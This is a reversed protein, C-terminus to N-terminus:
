LFAAALSLVGGAINGILSNSSSKQATKQQGTSIQVAAGQRAQEMQLASSDHSQNIAVNAAYSTQVTEANFRAIDAYTASNALAIDRTAAIQLQNTQQAFSAIQQQSTIGSLQVQRQAEIGAMSVDSGREIQYVGTQQKLQEIGFDRNAIIQAQAVAANVDQAHGALQMQGLQLATNAQVQEPSPGSQYAVSSGGSGSSYLLYLVLGGVVVGATAYPHEQVFQFVKM